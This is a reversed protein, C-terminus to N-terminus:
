GQLRNDVILLNDLRCCWDKSWVGGQAIGNAHLFALGSLAMWCQRRLMPAPWPWPGSGNENLWLMSPGYIEHVTCLIRNSSGLWFHDLAKLVSQSGPDDKSLDALHTLIKLSEQAPISSEPDYIRLCRFKGSEGDKVVWTVYGKGHQDQGAPGQYHTIEYRGKLKDGINVM